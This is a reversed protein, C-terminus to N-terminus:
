GAGRHKGPGAGGVWRWGAARVEWRPGKCWGGLWDLVSVGGSSGAAFQWAWCSGLACEAAIPGHFWALQGALSGRIPQTLHPAQWIQLPSLYRHLRTGDGILWQMPRVLACTSARLVIAEDARGPGRPLTSHFAAGQAAGASESAAESAFNMACNSSPESGNSAHVWAACRRIAVKCSSRWEASSPIGTGGDAGSLADARHEAARRQTTPPM